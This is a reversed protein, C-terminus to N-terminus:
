GNGRRKVEKKWEAGHLQNHLERQMVQLNEPRNDDRVHNKHHVVEDPTLLRGLEREMVLRHKPVYGSLSAAPHEPLYVLIYGAKTRYEAAGFESGAHDRRAKERRAEGGAMHPSGINRQRLAELAEARAPTMPYDGTHRMTVGARRLRNHATSTSCGLRAAIQATTLGEAYLEAFEEDTHPVQATKKAAPELGRWIWGSKKKCDGCEAGTCYCCQRPICKLAAALLAELEKKTM